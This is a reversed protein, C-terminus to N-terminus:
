EDNTEGKKHRHIYAYDLRKQEFYAQNVLYKSSSEFYRMFPQLRKPILYGQAELELLGEYRDMEGMKDLEAWIDTPHPPEIGRLIDEEFDEPVTIESKLRDLEEVERLMQEREEDTLGSCDSSAELEPTNPADSVAKVPDKRRPEDTKFGILEQQRRVEPVVEADVFERASGITEKKARRKEAIYDRIRQQEEETGFVDAMPHTMEWRRAECILEKGDESYVLVSDADGLALGVLDYRVLVRDTRGYLRYDYFDWDRGSVRVRVGNRGIRTLKESMMLDRLQEPDVGPGRGANFVENPCLGNLHTRKQPRAGYETDIWAAIARHWEEITPVYGQTIKDHIRAHLKEGRRLRAPKDDIGSGIFSPSWRELEQFTEFFREIPKSQGHYPWALVVRVGMREFLGTLGSQNFDACGQFFKSRFARGNDLYAVKPLKGLRLIARRLAAAIAQTNETPMIEWGAPYNSRMDYWLIFQMRSPKGTEPHIALGNLVHGDAVLVDGVELLSWDRRLYPLVKENLGGEGERWFVWQDYNRERWRIIFRRYTDESYGNAIGRAELASKARRVMESIALRNPHCIIPIIVEAHADTISRRNHGHRGRQDALVMSDNKAKRLLVKWKEVTKWHLPGLKERLRRCVEGSNYASMFDQRAKVKMRHPSRKVAGTYLEVLDARALALDRQTKTVSWKAKTLADTRVPSRGSQGAAAPLRCTQSSDSSAQGSPSAIVPLHGGAPVLGKKVAERAEEAKVAERARWIALSIRVEEPLDAVPGYVKRKGGRCTETKFPWSENRAKMQVLRRKSERAPTDPYLASVLEDLTVYDTM